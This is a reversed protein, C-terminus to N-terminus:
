EMALILNVECDFIEQAYIFKWVLLFFDFCIEAVFSSSVPTRERVSVEEM